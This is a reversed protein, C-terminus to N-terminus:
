FAENGLNISLYKPETPDKLVNGTYAACTKLCSKAVGPQRDETYLTKVTKIGHKIEEIPPRKEKQKIVDMAKKEDFPIGLREAKDRELQILMQKKADMFEAKEKKREALANMAEQEKFERQAAAIEKSMKIRNIEQEHKNVKEEEARRARGAKIKEEAIKIREEKSLNGAYEKKLEGEGEQGVILLPENFDADDMHEMIWEMAAEVSQGKSMVMFLAKESADKGYGM